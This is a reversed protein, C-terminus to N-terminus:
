CLCMAALQYPQINQRIQVLRSEYGRLSAKEPFSRLSLFYNTSVEKKGDLAASHDTNSKSSSSKEGSTSPRTESYIPHLPVNLPVHKSSSVSSSSKTHNSHSSNSAKVSLDHPADGTDKNINRRSEKNFCTSFLLSEGRRQKEEQARLTKMSLDLVPMEGLGSGSKFVNREPSVSMKHRKFDSETSPKPVSMKSKLQLGPFQAVSKNPENFPNQRKIGNTHAPGIPGKQRTTASTIPGKPTQMHNAPPPVNSSGATGARQKMQDMLNKDIASPIDIIDKQKTVLRNLEHLPKNDTSVPSMLPHIPQMTPPIGPVGLQPIMFPFRVPQMSAPIGGMPLLQPYFMPPPLSVPSMINQPIAKSTSTQIRAGTIQEQSLLKSDVTSKDDRDEQANIKVKIIGEDTNLTKEHVNNEAIKENQEEM